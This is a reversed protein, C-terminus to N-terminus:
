AFLVSLGGLLSVAGILGAVLAYTDYLPGTDTMVWAVRPWRKWCLVSVTRPMQKATVYRTHRIRYNRGGVTYEYVGKSVDNLVMAVRIPGNPTRKGYVPVNKKHTAALLSATARVTLGKRKEFLRYLGCFTGAALFLGLSVTLLVIGIIHM